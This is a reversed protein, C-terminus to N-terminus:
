NSVTVSYGSGAWRQKSHTFSSTLQNCLHHSIGSYRFIRHVGGGRLPIGWPTKIVLINFRGHGVTSQFSGLAPSCGLCIKLLSRVWMFCCLVGFVGTMCPPRTNKVPQIIGSEIKLIPKLIWMKKGYYKGPVKVAGWCMWLPSPIVSMGAM